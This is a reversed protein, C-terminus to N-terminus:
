RQVAAMYVDDLDPRQERDVKIAIFNANMARRDKPQRLVREGDRSVLPM